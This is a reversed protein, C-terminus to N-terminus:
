AARREVMPAHGPRAARRTVLDICPLGDEARRQRPLGAVKYDAPRLNSDQRAREDMGGGDRPAPVVVGTELWHLDVGTRMAWQRVYVARPAAGVDNMWRSVTGRVVGLEEAMEDSKIGAHDLARKLRWGLTWDPVAGATTTQTMQSM